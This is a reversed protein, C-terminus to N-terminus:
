LRNTTPGTLGTGRPMKQHYLEVPADYWKQCRGACSSSARASHRRREAIREYGSMEPCGAKIRNTIFGVVHQSPGSSIEASVM